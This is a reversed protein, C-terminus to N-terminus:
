GYRLLCCIWHYRDLADVTSPAFDELPCEVMGAPLSHVAVHNLCLHHWFADALPMLVTWGMLM